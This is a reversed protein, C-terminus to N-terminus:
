KALLACKLHCDARTRVHWTAETTDLERHGRPSYSMLSRQGRSKGPLFVPTPLMRKELPEEKGM